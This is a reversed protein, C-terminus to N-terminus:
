LGEPLQFQFGDLEDDLADNASPAFSNMWADVEEDDEENALVLLELERAIDDDTRYPRGESITGSRSPVLTAASATSGSRSFPARSGIRSPVQVRTSLTTTKVAPKRFTTAPKTSIPPNSTVNSLPKRLTTSAPRSRSYGITSKSATTAAAHRAASGNMAPRVTKSSLPIRQKTSATSRAYSSKAPPSLAAAASRAKLSSPGTSKKIAGESAVSSAKGPLELGLSRVLEADEEAHIKAFAREMEEESRKKDSALAKKEEREWKRLGDNGLPNLYANTIGRTMNAGEFMPFKWDKPLDDYEDPLPIEKPPMYEIEREEEEQEDQAEPQHVKVKPRRLRPSVKQTKVSGDFPAAPTLFARTKANTTKMGLPARATRPGAPTVFAGANGKGITKLTKGTKGAANEDNLSVKFPTKPAKPGPTKAGFAKLTGHNLPKGTPGTHLNHVLNEQDNAALLDM